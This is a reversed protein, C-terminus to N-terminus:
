KDDIFRTDDYIDSLENVRQEIEQREEATLHPIAQVLTLAYREATSYPDYTKNSLLDYLSPAGVAENYLMAQYLMAKGYKNEFRELIPALTGYLKGTHDAIDQKIKEYAEESIDLLNGGYEREQQDYIKNWTEVGEDVHIASIKNIEFYGEGYAEVQEVELFPEADATQEAEFQEVELLPENAEEPTFPLGFNVRAQHARKKKLKDREEQSLKAEQEKRKRASEKAIQSRQEKTLPHPKYNRKKKHKEKYSVHTRPKRTNLEENQSHKRHARQEAQVKPKKIIDNEQANKTAKFPREIAM